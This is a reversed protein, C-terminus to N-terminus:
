MTKSTGANRGKLAKAMVIAAASITPFDNFALGFVAGGTDFDIYGICWKGQVTKNLTLYHRGSCCDAYIYSPLKNLM